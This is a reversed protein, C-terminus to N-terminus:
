RGTGAGVELVTGRAHCYMMWRRMLKIGMVTEDKDIQDDYGYAIRQFTETRRPDSVYSISGGGDVGVGVGSAVRENAADRDSKSATLYAYTLYTTGAYM